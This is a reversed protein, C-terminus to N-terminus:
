LKEALWSLRIILVNHAGAAAVELARKVSKQGKVNKFDMPYKLNQHTINNLEVEEDKIEIEDNIYKVTEILSGVGIIKIDGVIKAEKANEKPM